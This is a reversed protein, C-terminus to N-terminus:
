GKNIYSQDNEKTQIAIWKMIIGYKDMGKSIPMQTTGKKGNRVISCCGNV